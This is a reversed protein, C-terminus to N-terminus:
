TLTECMLRCIRVVSYHTSVLKYWFDIISLLIIHKTLQSNRTILSRFRAPSALIRKTARSACQSCVYTYTRHCRQRIAFMYREVGGERYHRARGM